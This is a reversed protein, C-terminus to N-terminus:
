QLEGIRCLLPCSARLLLTGLAKPSRGLSKMVAVAFQDADAEAERSYAATLMGRGANLIAGVGTVYGFLLGLLFGTGSDQILRRLGDRHALHGLEHALVGALEDPSEANGILGNLVYIKGGPIAFANPVSSALVVPQPPFPLAAATQLRRVLTALAAAGEPNACTKGGFIARAQSDVAEGLQMELSLPVLGTLRAAIFPVGFWVVALLSAAAAFSWLVIQRTSEGKGSDEGDLLTCLRM